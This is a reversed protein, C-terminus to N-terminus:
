SDIGLSGLATINWWRGLFFLLGLGLVSRISRWRGDGMRISTSAGHTASIVVVGIQQQTFSTFHLAMCVTQIRGQIGNRFVIPKTTLKASDHFMDRHIM